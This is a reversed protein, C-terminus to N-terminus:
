QHLYFILEANISVERFMNAFPTGASIGIAVNLNVNKITPSYAIGIRQEIKKADTFDFATHTNIGFKKM